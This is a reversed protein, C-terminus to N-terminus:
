KRTTCPHLESSQFKKVWSGFGVPSVPPPIALAMTPVISSRPIALRTPTGSPIRPPM